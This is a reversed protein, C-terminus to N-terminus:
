PDIMENVPKYYVDSIATKELHIDTGVSMVGVSFANYGPRDYSIVVVEGLQVLGSSEDDNLFNAHYTITGGGFKDKIADEISTIASSKVTGSTNILKAIDTLKEDLWMKQMLSTCVSFLIVAVILLSMMCIIAEIYASGKNCKLHKKLTKVM